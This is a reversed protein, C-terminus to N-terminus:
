CNTNCKLDTVQWETGWQICTGSIWVLWFGEKLYRHYHGTTPRQRVSMLTKHIQWPPTSQQVKEGDTSVQCTILVACHFLSLVLALNSCSISTDKCVVFPYPVYCIFVTTPCLWTKFVGALSNFFIVFAFGKLKRSDWYCPLWCHILGSCRWLPQEICLKYVDVSPTSQRATGWQIYEALGCKSNMLTLSMRLCRKMRSCCLFWNCCHCVRILLLKDIPLVETTAGKAVSISPTDITNTTDM